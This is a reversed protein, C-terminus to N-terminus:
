VGKREQKLFHLWTVHSSADGDVLFDGRAGNLQADGSFFECSQGVLVGESNLAQEVAPRPHESLVHRDKSRVQLRVRRVEEALCPRRSTM